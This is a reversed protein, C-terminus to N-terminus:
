RNINLEKLYIRATLSENHFESLANGIEQMRKRDGSDLADDMLIRLERESMKSLDEEDVVDDVTSVGLSDDDHGIVEGLEYSKIEDVIEDVISDVKTRAEDTKNLIGRFLALFEKESMYEPDLIKGYVYLRMISSYNANPSDNIFDRLDSAIQPGTRFDEAEDEMSSVNIKVTKADEIEKPSSGEKPQYVSAVLEMIGKVAEHLLMPFDIGRAKIVPTYSVEQETEDGQSDTEVEYEKEDEVKYEKWDIKVAGALGDPKKRIMDAKVNIPIVWDAQNAIETIKNWTEISDEFDDRMVGKLLDISFTSNLILKTNKAEGQILNNALKAKHIKNKLVEDKINEYEISEDEGDEDDENLMKSIKTGDKEFKIDLEVGDLIEGFENLIIEEAIKELEEERGSIYSESKKILNMFNRGIHNTPIFNGDPMKRVSYDRQAKNELDNLYDRDNSNREGENPIGPNGKITVEELFKNFKKIM